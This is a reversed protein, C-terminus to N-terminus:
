YLFDCRMQTILSLGQVRFSSWVLGPRIRRVCRPQVSHGRGRVEIGMFESNFNGSLVNLNLTLPQLECRIFRKEHVVFGDEYHTGM